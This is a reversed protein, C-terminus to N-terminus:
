KQKVFIFSGYDHGSNRLISYQPTQDANGAVAEKINSNFLEEDTFIQAPARKLAELLAKTFVSHNGGGADAVYENGGSAILTRSKKAFLKKLYFDRSGQKPASNLGRSLEGSFCSDSIVLIHDSSIKKLETTLTEAQIWETSSDEKADIPLWYASEQKVGHGAYYIIFNDKPLLKLKFENVADLIEARKASLLLKVNFGYHNKLVQAVEKADNEATDLKTVYQYNNNGIVLAYYKGFDSPMVSTETDAKVVSVVPADAEPETNVTRQLKLIKETKNGQTDLAVVKISNSGEKLAVTTAFNGAADREAEQGAITVSAIGNEDMAQGQILQEADSVQNAGRLDFNIINIVPPKKDSVIIQTVVSSANPSVDTKIKPAAAIASGPGCEGTLYTFGLIVAENYPPQVFEEKKICGDAQATITHSQNNVMVKLHKATGVAKGDVFFHTQAQNSQFQLVSSADSSAKPYQSKDQSTPSSACSVVTAVLISTSMLIGIKALGTREM